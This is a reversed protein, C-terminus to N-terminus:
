PRRRWGEDPDALRLGIEDELVHPPPDVQVHLARWLAVRVASSDPGATPSLTMRSAEERRDSDRSTPRVNRRNLPGRCASTYFESSPLAPTAGPAVALEILAITLSLT